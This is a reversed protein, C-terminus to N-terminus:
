ATRTAAYAWANAQFGGLGLAVGTFRCRLTAPAGNALAPRATARVSAENTIGLLSAEVTMSQSSLPGLQTTGAGDFWACRVTALGGLLLLDVQAVTASGDLVFTGAVPATFTAVTTFSSPSLDIAAAGTGSDAYSTAGSITNRIGLVASWTGSQCVVIEGTTTNVHLLGNPSCAGTPTTGSTEAGPGAPGPAGSGLNAVPAGWAGATKPGYLDKAGTDFYMDGDTGTGGAPVGDGVLFRTGALGSVASAPILYGVLDVVVNTAGQQNYISIGGTAGLKAIMSNAAVFGPEANNASANPRTEGKPWVTLYSKATADQDLTINIVAAVAESPLPRGSGALTLDLQGANLMPGASPVGNPGYPAPRTDLVRQPSLSVFVQAEDATVATTGVASGAGADGTAAYAGAASLALLAALAVVVIKSSVRHV